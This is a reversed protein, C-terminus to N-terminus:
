WKGGDYIRLLGAHFNKNFGLWGLICLLAIWAKSKYFSKKEEYTEQTIVPLSTENIYLHGLSSEIVNGPNEVEYNLKNFTFMFVIALSVMSIIFAWLLITNLNTIYQKFWELNKKKVM